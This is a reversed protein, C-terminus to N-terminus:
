SDVKTPRWSKYQTTSHLSSNRSKGGGGASGCGQSMVGGQQKIVVPTIPSSQDERAMPAARALLALTLHEPSAIMPPLEEIDPVPFVDRTDYAIVQAPSCDWEKAAKEEAPTLGQALVQMTRKTSIHTVLYFQKARSRIKESM